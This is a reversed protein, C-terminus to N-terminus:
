GALLLLGNDGARRLTPNFRLATIRGQDAVARVSEQLVTRLHAPENELLGQWFQPHAIRDSMALFSPIGNCTPAALLAALRERKLALLDAADPDNEAEYRAIQGRLAEVEPSEDGAVNAQEADWSAALEEAYTGMGQLVAQIAVSEKVANRTGQACAPTQCRLQIYPVKTMVTRSILNRGCSECLVLGTLLRVQGPLLERREAKANAVFVSLILEQQVETLLAPHCGPHVERYVGPPNTQRRKRDGDPDTIVTGGGYCRAGTLAPNSLWRRLSFPSGWSVGFQEISLRLTGSLNRSELFHAVLAQAVPWQAPDAELNLRDATFRYGFPAQRGLPALKSRRYAAGHRVRESLRDSEAEAWSVLMRAMFRGGPTSLDLSDDLAVLNPTSEQQFFRLLQAGHSSSRSLRDLRTVVVAGVLGARCDRMLKALQPRDDRSGSAIDVYWSPEGAPSLELAKRRLRDQQQELANAQEDSGSSVRAYLAVQV